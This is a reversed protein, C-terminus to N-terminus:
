AKQNEQPVDELGIEHHDQSVSVLDSTTVSMSNRHGSDFLRKRNTDTGPTSGSCWVPIQIGFGM